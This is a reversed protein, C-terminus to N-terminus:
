YSRTRVSKTLRKEPLERAGRKSFYKAINFPSSLWWSSDFLRPEYGRNSIPHTHGRIVKREYGPSVIGGCHFGDPDFIILDGANVAITVPNHLEDKPIDNPIKGAKVGSLFYYNARFHGERHSGLDYGFAGNRDDVDLLNIYFKLSQKRDFHWPLISEPSEKEHTFFIDDNLIIKTGFYQSSVQNMFDSSFLNKTVSYGSGLQKRKCRVVMGDENTPHSRVDVIGADQDDKFVKRHEGALSELEDIALYDKIICIGYKDIIDLTLSVDRGEIIIQDIKKDM